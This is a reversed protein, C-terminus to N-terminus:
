PLLHRQQLDALQGAGLNASSVVMRASTRLTLSCVPEVVLVLQSRTATLARRPLVGM